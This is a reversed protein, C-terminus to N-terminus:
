RSGGGGSALGTLAQNYNARREKYSEKSLRSVPFQTEIFTSANALPPITPETM